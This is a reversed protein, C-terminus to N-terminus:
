SVSHTQPAKVSRGMERVLKQETETAHDRDWSALKPAMLRRWLPPVLAIVITTLYGSIMMPASAFPELDWYPVEGEAHHHSHRTLNFMAWSSVRRNTNWSHRASVPTRPDRALGYHEMYNVIELLAKGWLATAVFFLAALSGFLSFVMAVLGISMLQGRIVANQWSWLRVGRRRLRRAEIKWASLNGRVTSLAIHAYVSRGRPATAPDEATSVYRHHGYVHEIAFSTDFSFALLWRGVLMSIPDWTRHTLEHAPITGVMGIMLGTLIAASVHHGISTADRAALVDYGTFRMVLAGFGLPDGHSMGFVAAFVIMSLLPLALWLQATLLWPHKLKPTSTDDGSIADGIIYLALVSLLGATVYPGGALLTAFSFLGIVHFLFFKLYHFVGLLSRASYSPVLPEATKSPAFRDFSVRARPIGLTVLRDLAADVMTPPGCVYARAEPTTVERLHDTVLGRMGVWKTAGEERESSGEASLIPQFRFEGQWRRAISEIESHAYLDREQRAGFLLTASRKSRGKDIADNLIALIPGLGSGGAVLVLPRDDEHLVMEGHPGEITVRRGILDEECIRTSLHGGPVRRVFFSAERRDESMSAFSYSRQVHPEDDLAVNAFQGARHEFTADLKVRLHTIDHTVREQSAVVGSARKLAVGLDVEVRVRDTKPVSQCALIFGRSIEDDSLLYGPDTLEKVEGEVLRCKCTGCGGVRCSNPFAVGSRLAGDLLTERPKVTISLQNILATKATPM